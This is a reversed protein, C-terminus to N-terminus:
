STGVIPPFANKNLNTILIMEIEFKTVKIRLKIDGQLNYM